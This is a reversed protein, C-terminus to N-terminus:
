MWRSLFKNFESRTEQFLKDEDDMKLNLEEHELAVITKIKGAHARSDEAAKTNHNRISRRLLDVQNQHVIFKNQFHEVEAMVSHGNNKQVIEELRKNLIKLEDEYFEIRKIWQPHDNGCHTVVSTFAM